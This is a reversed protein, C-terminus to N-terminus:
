RRLSVVNDSRVIQRVPQLLIEWTWIKKDLEHAFGRFGLGEASAFLTSTAVIESNETAIMALNPQSELKAAGELSHGGVKAVIRYTGVEDAAIVLNIEYRSDSAGEIVALGQVIWTPGEHRINIDTVLREGSVQGTLRISGRGQWDGTDILM